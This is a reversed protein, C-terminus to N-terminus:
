PDTFVTFFIIFIYKRTLRYECNCSQVYNFLDYYPGFLSATLESVENWVNDRMAWVDFAVVISDKQFELKTLFFPVIM